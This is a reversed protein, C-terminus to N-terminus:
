AIMSEYLLNDGTQYWATIQVLASKNDIIGRLVSKLEIKRVICWMENLFFYCIYVAIHLGNNRPRLAKVTQWHNKSRSGKDCM